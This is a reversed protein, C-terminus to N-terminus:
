APTAFKDPVENGNIQYVNSNHGLSQSIGLYYPDSEAHAFPAFGCLLVVLAIPTAAAPDRFASKKAM